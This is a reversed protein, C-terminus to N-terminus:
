INAKNMAPNQVILCNKLYYIFFFSQYDVLQKTKYLYTKIDM